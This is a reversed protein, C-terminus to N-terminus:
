QIRRVRMFLENTTFVSPRESVEDCSVRRRAVSDPRCRSIFFEHAVQNAPTRCRDVTSRRCSLWVSKRVHTSALYTPGNDIIKMLELCFLEWALAQWSGLIAALRKFGYLQLTYLIIKNQTNLKNKWFVNSETANISKHKQLKAVHRLNLKLLLNSMDFNRQFKLLCFM